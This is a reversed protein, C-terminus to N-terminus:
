NRLPLLAVTNFPRERADTITGPVARCKEHFVLGTLDPRHILRPQLEAFRDSEAKSLTALVRQFALKLNLVDDGSMTFADSSAQQEWWYDIEELRQQSKSTMPTRRPGPTMQLARKVYTYSLTVGHDRCAIQYFHRVNFGPHGDRPGYRDRYPRLPRQVEALPVARLSPRRRRDFLGPYGYTEYRWRLRRVTRPTVGLVDAVQLWSQQGSLGRLIVEQVKMAWEVAAQAYTM